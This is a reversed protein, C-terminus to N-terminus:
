NIGIFNLGDKCMDHINLETKFGVEEYIKSVISYSTSIDGPRRDGFKYPIPKQNRNLLVENLANILELVSTGKGTGVNYIKLSKNNEILNLVVVHARALDQVHIYDRICTGDSTEYDNGFITFASYPNDIDNVISENIYKAVRLLYPFINNPIGSPNEGILGSPHAGIPNFYRLIVINWDSFKDNDILYKEVDYKNKAYNCTLGNGCKSEETVPAKSDGYVTASSSYIINKCFYRSMVNLLNITGEVNVQYYTEPYLQSENVSKLAAFHMVAKIMNKEFITNLLQTDRIDGEIFKLKNDLENNKIKTIKIIKDLVSIDSNSLNDLVIVNIGQEIVKAVVHSGIFGLGGTILIFSSDNSFTMYKNEITISMNDFFITLILTLISYTISLTFLILNLM